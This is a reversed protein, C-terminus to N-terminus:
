SNAQTPYKVNTDVNVAEVTANPVVAGTKDYVTGVLDGSIIQSQATGAVLLGVVLVVVGLWGLFNKYGKNRREMWGGSTLTGAVFLCVDGGRHLLYFSRRNIRIGSEGIGM